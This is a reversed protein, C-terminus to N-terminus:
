LSSWEQRGSLLLVVSESSDGRKNAISIFEFFFFVCLSNVNKM